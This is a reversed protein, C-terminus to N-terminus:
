LDETKNPLKYLAQLCAPTIAQDCTNLNWSTINIGSGPLQLDLVSGPPLISPSIELDRKKVSRQKRSMTREPKFHTTPTIFDIHKQLTAPVSYERCALSRKGIKQHEYVQYQTKLLREAESITLNVRIWNSKEFTSGNM